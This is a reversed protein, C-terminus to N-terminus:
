FPRAAAEMMKKVKTLKEIEKLVEVAMDEPTVSNLDEYGLQSAVRQLSVVADATGYGGKMENYRKSLEELLQAHVNRTRTNQMRLLESFYNSELIPQENTSPADTKLIENALLDLPVEIWISIGYRLYALNTSGQVAGDGACVVLRGMSSLQKLVETESEHFGKEDKEKFSKAASEGGAAQEILNDSDFYYYRLADALLKGLNTKMACNIGVLFISTGKLEDSIESAKKKVVLSPELEAISMKSSSLGHARSSRRSQPRGILVLKRPSRITRQSLPFGSSKVSPSTVSHSSNSYSLPRPSFLLAGAPTIAARTGM